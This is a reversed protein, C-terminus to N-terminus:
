KKLTILKNKVAIKPNLVLAQEYSSIARSKDGIQEFIEALHKYVEAKTYRSIQTHLSLLFLRESDEYNGQIKLLRATQIMDYGSRFNQELIKGSYDIKVLFKDDTGYPKGVLITREQPKITFPGNPGVFEVQWVRNGKSLDYCIVSSGDTHRSPSTHIFLLHVDPDIAVNAVYAHVIFQAPFPELIRVSTEHEKEAPILTVIYPPSNLKREIM